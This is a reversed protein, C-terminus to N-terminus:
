PSPCIGVNYVPNCTASRSLDCNQLEPGELETTQVTGAAAADLFSLVRVVSESFPLGAEMHGIGPLSQGPQIDLYSLRMGDATTFSSERVLPVNDVLSRRLSKLRLTEWKNLVLSQTPTRLIEWARRAGAYLFAALAGMGVTALGGAVLLWARGRRMPACTMPVPRDDCMADSM